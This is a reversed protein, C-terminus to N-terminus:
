EGNYLGFSAIKFDTIKNGEFENITILPTCNFINGEVEVEYAHNIFDWRPLPTNTTYGIVKQNDDVIPIGGNIYRLAEEVAEKTFITGNKNPIDVPILLKIKIKTNDLM